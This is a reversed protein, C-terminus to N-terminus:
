KTSQDDILRLFGPALVLQRKIFSRATRKVFKAEFRVRMWKNNVYM